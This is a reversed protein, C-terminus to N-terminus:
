LSMMRKGVPGYYPISEVNSYHTEVPAMAVMQDQDFQNFMNWLKVADDMVVIDTDLVIGADDDPFMDHVFIKASVCSYEGLICSPEKVREKM